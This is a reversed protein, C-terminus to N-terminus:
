KAAEMLEILKALQIRQAASLAFALAEAKYGANSLEQAMLIIKEADQLLRM